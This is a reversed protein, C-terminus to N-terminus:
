RRVHRRRLLTGAYGASCCRALWDASIWRLDADDGPRPKAIALVRRVEAQRAAALARAAREAAVGGDAAVRAAENEAAIVGALDDPLAPEEVAAAGAAPRRTYLLVYADTSTLPPEPVGVGAPSAM